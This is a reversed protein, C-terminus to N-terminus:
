LLFFFILIGILIICIYIIPNIRDILSLSYSVINLIFLGSIGFSGINYFENTKINSQNQILFGFGISSLIILIFYFFYFFNSLM